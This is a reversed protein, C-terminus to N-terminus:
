CTTVLHYLAGSTIKISSIYVEAMSIQDTPHMKASSKVIIFDLKAVTKSRWGRKGPFEQKGREEPAAVTSSSM